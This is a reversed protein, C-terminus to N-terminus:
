FYSLERKNQFCVLPNLISFSSKLSQFVSYVCKVFIRMASTYSLGSCVVGNIERWFKRDSECLVAYFYFYECLYYKEETVM